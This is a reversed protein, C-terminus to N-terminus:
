TPPWSASSITRTTCRRLSAPRRLRASSAGTSGPSSAGARPPHRRARRRRPPRLARLSTLADRGRRAVRRRGGGGDGDEVVAPRRPVGQGTAQGDRRPRVHGAPICRRSDLQRVRPRDDPHRSGIGSDPRRFTRGGPIFIDKQTPLDAGGSEVLHIAPLRNEFAIDAARFAKRLTFPNSAGGRVTPDSASILCEVGSVVGIGTVVSAGVAYDTGYGALPSLELFPADEDLLLEIRERALLKGRQHHRETYKPGGGALAKAHEAGVEALKALMAERNAIFEASTTDLTTHLREHASVRGGIRAVLRWGLLPWDRGAHGPFAIFTALTMVAALSNRATM